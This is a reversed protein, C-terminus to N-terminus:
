QASDNEACRTRRRSHYIAPRGSRVRRVDAACIRIRVVSGNSCLVRQNRRRQDVAPLPWHVRIATRRTSLRYLRSNAVGTRACSPFRDDKEWVVVLRGPEPYPLPKFLVSHVLAAMVALGAFTISLTFIVVISFHRDRALSRVAIRLKQVVTSIFLDRSDKM